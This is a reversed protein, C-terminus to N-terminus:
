HAAARHHSLRRFLRSAPGRVLVYPVLALAVAVLLTQLPRLGKLVVLQYLLDLVIALVFVKGVSHWGERLLQRRRSETLLSWLYASRGARADHIGDRVAFLLAMLPQLYFRFAFPGEPRGLIERWM